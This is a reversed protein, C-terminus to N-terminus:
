LLPGGGSPDPQAVPIGMIRNREVLDYFTPAQECEHVNFTDFNFLLYNDCFRDKKGGEERYKVLRNKNMDDPGLVRTVLPLLRHTFKVRLDPCMRMRDEPSMRELLYVNSAFQAIMDSGGIAATNQIRAGGKTDENERNAQCFTLVPLNLEKSLNKFAEIKAGISLFLPNKSAFDATGSLKIYDLVILGKKGEKLTKFAWRRAVSIMHELSKGGVFVHSVRGALPALAAEAMEVKRRMEPNNKYKKYRILYEKVGSAAALARSQNEEKTLETDLVLARFNDDKDQASLQRLTSLWFTSKGVKMRSCVVTVGLDLAGYLDNMVPFPLTIARKDYVTEQNLFDGVTGFLDSPEDEDRGSLLNIKKNFIETARALLETSKLPESEGNPVDKGTLNAIEVAAGHIERRNAIRRLERAISLTAKESVSLGELSKIYVGPEISDAIKIGLSSLRDSLLHVSFQGGSALCSDIGSLVVRNTVSLDEPRVHTTEARTEPHLITGSLFKKELDINYLDAM